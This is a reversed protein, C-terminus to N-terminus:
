QASATKNEITEKKPPPNSIRKIIKILFFIILFTGGAAVIIALAGSGACAISCSLAGLGFLLALAILISLIILLTKETKTSGEDNEVQKLQKKILKIKERRSLQSLDKGNISEIFKKILPNNGIATDGSRPVIRTALASQSATFFYERNNGLYLIMLFTVAGLSVDFLKRRIYSAHVGTTTKSPYWVWLGLTIIICSIFYAHPLIVNVENLLKGTFLGIAFLSIHIGIILLRSQLLHNKAWFSIKRM